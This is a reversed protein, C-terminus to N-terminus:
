GRSNEWAQRGPSNPPPPPAQRVRSQTRARARARVPQDKDDEQSTFDPKRNFTSEGFIRTRADIVTADNRYRNRILLMKRIVWLAFRVYEECFDEFKYSLLQMNDPDFGPIMVLNGYKEMLPRMAKQADSRLYINRVLSLASEPKTNLLTVLVKSDIEAMICDTECRYRRKSTAQGRALYYRLGFIYFNEELTSGELLLALLQKGHGPPRYMQVQGEFLVYLKDVQDGPAIIVEGKKASRIVPKGREDSIHHLVKKLSDHM